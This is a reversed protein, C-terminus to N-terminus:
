VFHPPRALATAALLGPATAVAAEAPASARLFPVARNLRLWGLTLAAVPEEDAVPLAREPLGPMEPWAGFVRIPEFRAQWGGAFRRGLRHDRTFAELADDDDWAAIMAARRVRAAPLRSGGFPATLTTQLYRLGPVEDAVPRGRLAALTGRPGGFDAIDVSVIM